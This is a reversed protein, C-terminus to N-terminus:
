RRVDALARTLDMSSRKAAAHEHCQYKQPCHLQIHEIAKVAAQAEQIFREAIDISVNLNHKKTEPKFM